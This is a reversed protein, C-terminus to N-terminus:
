KKNKKLNMGFLGGLTKIDEEDPEEDYEGNIVAVSIDALEPFNSLMQVLLLKDGALADDPAKFDHFWCKKAKDILDDYKGNKNRDNLVVVLEVNTTKRLSTSNFSSRSVHIKVGPQQLFQCIRDLESVTSKYGEDLSCWGKSNQYKLVNALGVIFMSLLRKSGEHTPETDDVLYIRQDLNPSIELKFKTEILQSTKGESHLFIIEITGKFHFFIDQARKIINSSPYPAEMEKLLTITAFIFGDKITSWEKSEQLKIVSAIGQVFLNILQKSGEETPKSNDDIYANRTLNPSVYLRFQTDVLESTKRGMNALVIEVTGTFFFKTM